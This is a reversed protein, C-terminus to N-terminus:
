AAHGIFEKLCANFKEPVELQPAHWVDKLIVLRSGAIRNHLYEAASPLCIEDKEGHIILTPVKIKNLAERLDIRELEDLEQIAKDISVIEKGPFRDDKFALHHFVVIGGRKIDKRIKRLIVPSLGCPYDDGAVFKPSTSVLVLSKIKNPFDLAMKLALMGGMSWGVLTTNDPLEGGLRACEKKLDSLDLKPAYGKPQSQWVDPNSAFGHLYTILM